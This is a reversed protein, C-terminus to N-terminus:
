KALNRLRRLCYWLPSLCSPSCMCTTVRVMELSGVLPALVGAAPRVGTLVGAMAMRLSAAMLLLLAFDPDLKAVAFDESELIGSSSLLTKLGEVCTMRRSSESKPTM